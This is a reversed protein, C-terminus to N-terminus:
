RVVFKGSTKQSNRNTLTYFYIGKKYKAANIVYDGDIEQKTILQGTTNYIRLIYKEKIKVNLISYDVVPNPKVLPPEFSNNKIGVNTCEGYIKIDNKQYCTLVYGEEHMPLANYYIPGYVSGVSEIWVLTDFVESPPLQADLKIRMFYNAGVKISDKDYVIFDITDYGPNHHLTFTDNINLNFNYLM